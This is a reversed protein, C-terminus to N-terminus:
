ENPKRKQIGNGYTKNVKMEAEISYFMCLSLFYSILCFLEGLYQNSLACGTFLYISLGVWILSLPMLIKIKTRYKM